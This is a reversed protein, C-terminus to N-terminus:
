RYIIGGKMVFTVHRLAGIDELPDGEVAVVDAPETAFLLANLSPL